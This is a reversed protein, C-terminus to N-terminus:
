FIATPRLCTGVFTARPVLCIGDLIPYPTRAIAFLSLSKILSYNLHENNEIVLCPFLIERLEYFGGKERIAKQEQVELNYNSRLTWRYVEVIHEM